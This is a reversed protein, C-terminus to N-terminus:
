KSEAIRRLSDSSLCRRRGCLNPELVCQFGKEKRGPLKFSRLRTAETMEESELLFRVLEPSASQRNPLKDPFLRPPHIHELRYSHLGLLVLVPRIRAGIKVLHVLVCVLTGRTRTRRFAYEPQLPCTEGAASTIENSVVHIGSDHSNFHTIDANAADLSAALAACVSPFFRSQSPRLYLVVWYFGEVLLVAPRARGRNVSSLASYNLTKQTYLDPSSSNQDPNHGPRWGHLGSPPLPHGYVPLNHKSTPHKLM